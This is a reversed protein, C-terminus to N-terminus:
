ASNETIALTLITHTAGFAYRWKSANYNATLQEPSLAISHLRFLLLSNPSYKDYSITNGLCANNSSTAGYDMAWTGTGSAAHTMPYNVDNVHVVPANGWAGSSCAWSIQILYYNGVVMGVSNTTEWHETGSSETGRTVHIVTNGAPTTDGILITWAQYTQAKAWLASNGNVGNYGNYRIAFEMTLEDLNDVYAGSVIELMNTSSVPTWMQAGSPAVDYCNVGAATANYASGATGVNTITTGSVPFSDGVYEVGCATIDVGDDDYVPTVPTLFQQQQLWACATAATDGGPDCIISDFPGLLTVISRAWYSVLEQIQAASLSAQNAYGSAVSHTDPNMWYGGGVLYGTLVGFPMNPAVTDLWAKFSITSDAWDAQYWEWSIEDVMSVRWAADHPAQTGDATNTWEPDVGTGYALYYGPLWHQLLKRGPSINERLWTIAYDFGGEFAYGKFLPGLAEFSALAVGYNTEYYSVPSTITANGYFILSEIELWVPIGQDMISQMVSIYRATHAPDTFYDVADSGPLSLEIEWGNAICYPVATSDYLSTYDSGSFSVMNFIRMSHGHVFPPTVINATASLPSLLCTLTTAGMSLGSVVDARAILGSLTITANSSRGFAIYCIKDAVGVSWAMAIGAGSFTATATSTTTNNANAILICKATEMISEATAGTNMTKNNLDTQAICGNNTGDTAGITLRSDTTGEFSTDSDTFFLAGQVTTVGTTVTETTSNASTWTGCLIENATSSYLCLAYTIAGAFISAYNSGGKNMTFSGAGVANYSLYADIAYSDTAGFNSSLAYANSM